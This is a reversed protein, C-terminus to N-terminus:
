LDFRYISYTEGENAVCLIDDSKIDYIIQQIQIGIRYRFLTNCNMFLYSSPSPIKSVIGAIFEGDITGKEANNKLIFFLKNENPIKSNLEAVLTNSRTHSSEFTFDGIKKLIGGEGGGDILGIQLPMDDVSLSDTIDRKLRIADAIDTLQEKKVAYMEAM